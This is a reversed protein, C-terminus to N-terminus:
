DNDIEEFGTDWDRLIFQGEPAKYVARLHAILQMHRQVAAEHAHQALHLADAAAGIARESRLGDALDTTNLSKTSKIKQDNGALEKAPITNM